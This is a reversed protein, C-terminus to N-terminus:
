IVNDIKYLEAYSAQLFILRFVIGPHYKSFAWYCWNCAQAMWFWPSETTSSCDALWHTIKFQIAHFLQFLFSTNTFFNPFFLNVVYPPKLNCYFLNEMRQLTCWNSTCVWYYSNVISFCVLCFNWTDYRLGLSKQAPLGFIIKNTSSYNCLNCISVSQAMHVLKHMNLYYCHNPFHTVIHMVNGAQGFIYGTWTQFTKQGWGFFQM